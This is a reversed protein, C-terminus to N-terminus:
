KAMKKRKSTLLIAVVGLVFYIIALIIMYSLINMVVAKIIDSVLSNYIFINNVLIRDNIVVNLIILFMSNTFLVVGIKKFKFFIMYILLSGLLLIGFIILLTNIINVLKNIYPAFRDIYNSMKIKNVYIKAMEETFQYLEEKNIIKFDMEIVYNDIKTNLRESFMSTDVDVVKGKYTNKIIKNIVKSLEEKTFTDDIIDDTFGSQPIYYLMEEKISDYLKRYYDNKNVLRVMYNSSLITMRFIVLFTVIFLITMMM